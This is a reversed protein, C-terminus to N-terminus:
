KTKNEKIRQLDFNIRDCLIFIRKVLDIRMKEIRKM